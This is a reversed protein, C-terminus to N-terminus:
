THRILCTQHLDEPIAEEHFVIQRPYLLMGVGSHFLKQTKDDIKSTETTLRVVHFGPPSPTKPIKMDNTLTGFRYQLNKDLHPQGIWSVRKNESTLVECGLYDGTDEKVTVNFEKKLQKVTKRITTENGIVLNDHVYMLVICLGDEVNRYM